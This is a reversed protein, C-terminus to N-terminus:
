GLGANDSEMRALSFSFGGSLDDLSVASGKELEAAM